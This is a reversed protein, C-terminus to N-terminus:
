HKGNRLKVAFDAFSPSRSEIIGQDLHRAIEEALRATYVRPQQPSELLNMLHLKPNAMADPRSPDVHGLDRGLYERLSESDAFFWSELHRVAVAVLRPSPIDALRSLAEEFPQAAVQPAQAHADADVLVVFKDPPAGRGSMEYWSAKVLKVAQDPTLTTNGPPKRVEFTAAQAKIERCLHPISVRDKEGSVIVVVNRAV